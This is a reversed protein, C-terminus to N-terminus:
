QRDLDAVPGLLVNDLSLLRTVRDGRVSCSAGQRSLTNDVFGGFLDIIKLILQLVWEIVVGETGDKNFRYKIFFVVFIDLYNQQSSKHPTFAGRYVSDPYRLSTATLELAIDAEQYTPM